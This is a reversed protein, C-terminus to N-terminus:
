REWGTGHEEPDCDRDAYMARDGDAAARCLAWGVLFAAAFMGLAVLAVTVANM